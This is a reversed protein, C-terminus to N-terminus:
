SRNTEQSLKEMSVEDAFPMSIPAIMAIQKAETKEVQNAEIDEVIAAVSNRNGKVPEPIEDAADM